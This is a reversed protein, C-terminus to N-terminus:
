FIRKKKYYSDAYHGGLGQSHQGVYGGDPSVEPSPLLYSSARKQGTVPSKVNSMPNGMPAPGLIGAGPALSQQSTACPSGKTTQGSQISGPYYTQSGAYYSPVVQVAMSYDVNTNVSTHQNYFMEVPAASTQVFTPASVECQEKECGAVFAESSNHSPVYTQYWQQMADQSYEGCSSTYEPYCDFAYQSTSTQLMEPATAARSIAPNLMSELVGTQQQGVNHKSANGVQLNLNPLINCFNLYPNNPIKLDPPPVGLLSTQNSMTTTWVANSMSVKPQTQAKQQSTLSSLFSNPIGQLHAQTMSASVSSPGIVVNPKELMSKHENTNQGLLKQNSQFSLTGVLPQTAVKTFEVPLAPVPIGKPSDALIGKGPNMMATPGRGLATQLLVSPDGLLGPKNNIAPNEKNVLMQQAAQMRMLNQFLGNGLVANQTQNIQLLAATLAPNPLVPMNSTNGLINKKGAYGHLYPRLLLQLAAPNGLSNLIQLPNPEPLLGKRSNLLLRQAAILAALTSRGQPGPACFSVRAQSGGFFIGDTSRQVLEAQDATEYEVVAFSPHSGSAQALQCFVPKFMQSFLETLETTDKYDHPIKDICLCKSHLFDASLHDADTWQVYLTCPGLQKGMLESKARAASDKKMYEVFGYGKSHGTTENYVLFCREVNGYLRVLEEFQQQTYSLPLQTICLLSDTPQLQVSIEREQFTSKHFKHIVDQAQEGNLLTIFATGKNKDVYCYKLEYDKLLEHIEQSSSSDTRLNKVLIKRRNSLEERTRQLRREIEEPEVAPLLQEEGLGRRPFASAAEAAVTTTTTTATAAATAAQPYPLAAM